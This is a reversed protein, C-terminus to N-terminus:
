LLIEIVSTGFCLFILSSLAFLQNSNLTLLKYGNNNTFNVKRLLLFAARSWTTVNVAIVTPVGAQTKYCTLLLIFLFNDNMTKLYSQLLIHYFIHKLNEKGGRGKRGREWDEKKRTFRKMEVLLKTSLVESSRCVNM